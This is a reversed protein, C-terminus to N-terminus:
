NISRRSVPAFVPDTETCAVVSVSWLMPSKSCVRVAKGSRVGVDGMFPVRGLVTLECRLINDGAAIPVDPPLALKVWIM